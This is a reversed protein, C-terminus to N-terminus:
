SQLGSIRALEDITLLKAAEAIHQARSPTLAEEQNTLARLHGSVCHIAENTARMKDLAHPQCSCWRAHVTLQHIIAALVELFQGREINLLRLEFDNM